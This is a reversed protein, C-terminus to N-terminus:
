ALSAAVDKNDPEEDFIERYLREASAYDQQRHLALWAQEEKV